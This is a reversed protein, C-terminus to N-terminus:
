PAVIFPLWPIRLMLMALGVVVYLSVVFLYRATTPHAAAVSRIYFVFAGFIHLTLIFQHPLPDANLLLVGLAISFIAVILTLRQFVDARFELVVQQYTDESM